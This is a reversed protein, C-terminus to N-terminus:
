LTWLFFAQPPYRRNGQRPGLTEHESCFNGNNSSIPTEIMNIDAEASCFVELECSIGFAGPDNSVKRSAAKQIAGSEEQKETSMCTLITALNCLPALKCLRDEFMECPYTGLKSLYKKEKRPM